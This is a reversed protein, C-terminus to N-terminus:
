NLERLPIKKKVLQRKVETLTETGFMKFSGDKKLFEINGEDEYNRALSDNRNLAAYHLVSALAVADAGAQSFVDKVHSGCSAGGHAILPITIVKSVM